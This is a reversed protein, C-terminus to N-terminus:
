CAEMQRTWVSDIPKYAAFPPILSMWPDTQILSDFQCLLFSWFDPTGVFNEEKVEQRNSIDPPWPCQRDVTGLQSYSFLFYCSPCPLSQPSGPKRPPEPPLEFGDCVCGCRGVSGHSVAPQPPYRLPLIASEETITWIWSPVTLRYTSGSWM